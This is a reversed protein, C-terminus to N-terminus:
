LTDDHQDLILKAPLMAERRGGERREEGGPAGGGRGGFGGRGMGGGRGFGGRGLGGGPRAGRIRAPDDSHERDLQWIGSLDHDSGSVRIVSSDTGAGTGARALAFGGLVFSLAVGFAWPRPMRRHLPSRSR